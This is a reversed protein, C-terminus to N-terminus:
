MFEMEPIFILLSFCGDHCTSNKTCGYKTHSSVEFMVQRSKNSVRIKVFLSIFLINIILPFVWFYYSTFKSIHSFIVIKVTYDILFQSNLVAKAPLIFFLLILISLSSLQLGKWLLFLCLKMLFQFFMQSIYFTDSVSFWVFICNM